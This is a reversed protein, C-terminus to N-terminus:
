SDVMYGPQDVTVYRRMEAITESTLLHSAYRSESFDRGSCEQIRKLGEDVPRILRVPNGAWIEGAPIHGGVVSGAGIVSGKGIDTGPLLIAGAGIFCGSRLRVAQIRTKGGYQRPSADHALVTVNPGFVVGDDITILHCHSPDVFYGDNLYVGSGLNLGRRVLERLYRRRRREKLWSIM